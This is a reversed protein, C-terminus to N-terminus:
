RCIIKAFRGPVFGNWLKSKERHLTISPTWSLAKRAGRGDDDDTVVVNLGFRFGDKPGHVPDIDAQHELFSKWPLAAEYIAGSGDEKRKVFYKGDPEAAKEDDDEKPDKKKKPLTLALSLLNDDKGFYDGGNGLMDLAILLCDGKWEDSESDYPILSSDEVDLALYLFRDDYALYLTASLDDRGRLIAMHGDGQITAVNRPEAIRVSQHVPWWDRLDGDIEPARAIRTIEMRDNPPRADLYGLMQRYVTEYTALDIREDLLAGQCLGVAAEIDDLKFRRDALRLRLAPTLRSPDDAARAALAAIEDRLRATDIRAFGFLGRHTTVLLTGGQIGASIVRRGDLQFTRQVKGRDRDLLYVIPQSPAPATQALVLHDRGVVLESFAHSRPPTWEWANKGGRWEMSRVKSAVFDGSLAYIRDGDFAVRSVPAKETRDELTPQGTAADYVAFRPPSNLEHPIVAVAAGDRAAIM